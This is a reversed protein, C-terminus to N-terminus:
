KEKRNWKRKISLSDQMKAIELHMPDDLPPLHYHGKIMENFKREDETRPNDFSKIPEPKECPAYWVASFLQTGKVAVVIRMIQATGDAGVVLM